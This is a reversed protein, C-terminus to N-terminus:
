NKKKHKPPNGGERGREGKIERERERMREKGRFDASRGHEQLDVVHRCAGDDGVLVM